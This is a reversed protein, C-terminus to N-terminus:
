LGLAGQSVTYLLSTHAGSIDSTSIIDVYSAHSLLSCSAVESEPGTAIYTWDARHWLKSSTALSKAKIRAGRLSGVWGLGKVEIKCSVCVELVCSWLRSSPLKQLAHPNEYYTRELM